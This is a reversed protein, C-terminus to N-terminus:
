FDFFCVFVKSFNDIGIIWKSSAVEQRRLIMLIVTSTDCFDVKRFFQFVAFEDHHSGITLIAGNHGKLFHQLVVIIKCMESLLGGSPRAYALFM